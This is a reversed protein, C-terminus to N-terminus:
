LINQLGIIQFHSSIYVFLIFYKHNLGGENDINDIKETNEGHVETTIKKFFKLYFKFNEQCTVIYYNYNFL